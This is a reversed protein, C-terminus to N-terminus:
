SLSILIRIVFNRLIQLVFFAVIPSFDV